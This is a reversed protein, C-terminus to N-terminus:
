EEKKSKIAGNIEKIIGFIDKRNAIFFLCIVVVSTIFIYFDLLILVAFAILLLLNFIFLKWNILVQVYRRIDILRVWMMVFYAFFTSLVSAWIGIHVMLLLSILVSIIASISSVIMNKVPMKLANYFVGFFDAIALFANGVLLLPIYKWSTFYVQSVYITMFPKIVAVLAFCIFFTLCTYVSFINSYFTNDNENDVEKITSIGWAQSFITVVIYMLAPIKTAVTYFGLQEDGLINEVFLKNSSQIVWWVIGDIILPMSYKLMKKLTTANFRARKGLSFIRCSFMFVIIAVGVALINAILYGQIGLDRYLLFLINLLALVLTYVISVVAYTKNKGISKAYNQFVLYFMQLIIYSCFYWKWPKLSEYLGFIPTVCVTFVAGLLSIFIGCLLVNDASENKDLGFRIVAYYIGLCVFPIILQSLTFVLDAIGYEEPTLCNTYLPVLLFLILKSGITGIAFTITDKILSKSKNNM